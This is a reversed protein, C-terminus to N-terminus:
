RGEAKRAAVEWVVKQGYGRTVREDARMVEWGREFLADVSERDFLRKPMGGVLYFNEEIM